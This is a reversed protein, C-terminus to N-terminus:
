EEPWDSIADVFAQDEAATASHAVVLSQRRAERAFARSRVDPVWIQVPRLGQRRLRQRHAQVKDRSSRPSRTTPM